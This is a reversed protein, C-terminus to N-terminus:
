KNWWALLPAVTVQHKSAELYERIQAYFIVYKFTGGDDSFMDESSLAFRVQSSRILESRLCASYM